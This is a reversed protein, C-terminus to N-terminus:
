FNAGSAPMESGVAKSQLGETWISWPEPSQGSPLIFNTARLVWSSITAGWCKIQRWCSASGNVIQAVAEWRTAVKKSHSPSFINSEDLGARCGSLAHKEDPGQAFRGPQLSSFREPAENPREWRAGAQLVFSLSTICSDRVMRPM